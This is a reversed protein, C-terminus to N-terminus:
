VAEILGTEVGRSRLKLLGRQVVQRCYERSCDLERAVQALTRADNGGDLGFHLVVVRREKTTMTSEELLTWVSASREAQEALEMPAMAESPVLDLWASGSISRLEWGLVEDVQALPMPLLQALQSPKPLMGKAQLFRARAARLRTLQENVNTPIRIARSQTSLARNL